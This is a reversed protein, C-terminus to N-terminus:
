NTPPTTRTAANFKEVLASRNTGAWSFDYDILKTDRLVMAQQPPTAEPNTLFQYSGVTQGIEQARRTLAWDVFMQAAKQDPGGTLIAVGGIEFGTGESPAAIEIHSFGEERFAIADHLFTIGIPIERLGVMRAPATGSRTYQRIQQNLRQFYALGEEEGKLQIVTALMTYATGSSGPHATVIQGAFEPRLLDEWSTPFEHGNEQFWDKDFVFGLYGVYIGTWYGNPDKFQDPIISANPSVYPVLMGEAKAAIFADVPGGFWVSASMNEREAIIRALTEGSSMRVFNTRVGTEREFERVAAIAYDEMMGAYITLTLNENNNGSGACGTIILMSILALIIKIKMTIKEKEVGIKNM